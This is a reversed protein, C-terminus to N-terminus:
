PSFHVCVLSVEIEMDLKEVSVLHRWSPIDSMIFRLEKGYCLWPASNLWNRKVWVWPCTTRPLSLLDKVILNHQRYGKCYSCWLGFSRAFYLLWFFSAREAKQQFHCSWVRQFVGEATWWLIMWLYNSHPFM